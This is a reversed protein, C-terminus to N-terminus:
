ASTLRLAPRTASRTDARPPPAAPRARRGSRPARFDAEVTFESGSLPAELSMALVVRLPGNEKAELEDLEAHVGHDLILCDAVAALDAVAAVFADSRVLRRDKGSHLFLDTAPEREREPACELRIVHAGLDAAIRGCMGAALALAEPRGPAVAEVITTGALPRMAAM